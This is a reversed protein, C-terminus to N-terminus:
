QDWWVKADQTDGGPLLAVAAEIAAKNSTYEGVAYAFRRPIQKSANTAAAAPTLVPFGTRRWIDWGRLGDPYSAIYEQIAIKGLNSATGPAGLAVAAQTKYAAPL